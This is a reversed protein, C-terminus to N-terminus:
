EHRQEWARDIATRLEAAASRPDDSGAIASIVAVGSAGCAICAAANEKTIGGIAIVPLAVSAALTSLWDLGRPALGLKSATAFVHGAILFDVGTSRMASEISHVSRSLPRPSRDPVPESEPLHLGCDFLRAITPANNIQVHPRSALGASVGLPYGGHQCPSTEASASFPPTSSQFLEETTLGPDSGRSENSFSNSDAAVRTRPNVGWAVGSYVGEPNGDTNTVHPVSAPNREAVSYAGEIIHSAFEILDPEALDKERVQILDVGGAIAESAWTEPPLRLLHRDTIDILLPRALDPM